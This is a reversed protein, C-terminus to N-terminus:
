VHALLAVFDAHAASKLGEQVVALLRAMDEALLAKCDLWLGPFVLSRHVGDADPLLLQYGSKTLRHWRVDREHFLVALYEQVGAEEYLNLKQNLDYAASSLSVEGILEPTGNLYKGEISCQGGCEPLIRLYDDPQPADKLMQTTANIGSKTGPTNASYFWFVGAIPSDMEAHEVSLPSPMYVTGGILEARKIEPHLEWRRLFEDRTLKDGAALPPASQEITAM